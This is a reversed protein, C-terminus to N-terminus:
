VVSLLLLVHRVLRNQKTKVLIDYWGDSMVSREVTTLDTDVTTITCFEGVGAMSLVVLM